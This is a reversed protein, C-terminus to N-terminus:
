KQAQGYTGVRAFSGRAGMIDEEKLVVRWHPPAVGHELAWRRAQHVDGAVIPNEYAQRFESENKFRDVKQWGSGNNKFM